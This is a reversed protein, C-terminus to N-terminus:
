RKHRPPSLDEIASEDIQDEKFRQEPYFDEEFHQNNIGKRQM